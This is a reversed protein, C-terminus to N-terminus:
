PATSEGGNRTALEAWVGYIAPGGYHRDVTQTLNKVSLTESFFRVSADALAANVGGPHYSSASM